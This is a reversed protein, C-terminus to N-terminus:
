ALVALRESVLQMWPSSAEQANPSLEALTQWAEKAKVRDNLHWFYLGVYYLAEDRQQNKPDAALEELRKLGQAHATSDNSDIEILALKTAYVYYLPSNKSMSKMMQTMVTIAEDTKNQKVLAEAQYALFYPALNSNAYEDHARKCATEVTSWPVSTESAGVAQDYLEICSALTKQADKEKQGAFQSYVWWLGLLAVLALAGLVLANTVKRAQPTLRIGFIHLLSDDIFSIMNLAM